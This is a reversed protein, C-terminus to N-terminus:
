GMGFLCRINTCLDRRWPAGRSFAASSVLVDSDVGHFPFSGNMNLICICLSTFTYETPSTLPRFARNPAAM